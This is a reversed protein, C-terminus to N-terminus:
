QEVRENKGLSKVYAIIKLLEDESIRGQFTPMVPKYGAAVQSFPLLISDRIYKEDAFVTKEGELPVTHGYVGDLLPARVVSNPGHCGSCGYSKFLQAGAAALTQTTTGSQLWRQYESPEMVYVHGIMGSHRTGCYEACFLDYTGVKNPEFWLSSYRGPVVDQKVRFAPVYFDHIVDQSTMLMKVPKNVPIHLENIERKGGPHRIEWMWQRGNAYVEAADKPYHYIEFFVVTGAAFIVMSIALPIVVWFVEIPLYHSVAGERNASSGKRYKVAFFVILFAILITFFFCVGLEGFYVMDVRHALETAADPFLPFDWM